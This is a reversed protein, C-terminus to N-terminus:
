SENAILSHNDNEMVAGNDVFSCEVETRRSKSHSSAYKRMKDFLLSALCNWLIIKNSIKHSRAIESIRAARQQIAIWRKSQPQRSEVRSEEHSHARTSGTKVNQLDIQDVEFPRKGSHVIMHQECAKTGHM